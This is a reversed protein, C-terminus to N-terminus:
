LISNITIDRLTPKMEETIRGLCSEEIFKTIGVKKIKDEAWETTFLENSTWDYYSNNYYSQHQFITEIYKNSIILVSAGNASCSVLINDIDRDSKYANDIILFSISYGIQISKSISFHIICGNDFKITHRKDDIIGLKMYFPLKDYLYRFTSINKDCMNKNICIYQITKDKNALIYSLSLILSAYTSGIRKTCTALNFRHNSYSKIMDVQCRHPTVGIYKFISIPDSKIDFLNQKELETYEFLLNPSRYSIDGSKSNIRFPFDVESNSDSLIHYISVSRMLSKISQNKSYQEILENISYTNWIM